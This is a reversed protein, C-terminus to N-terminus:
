NRILSKLWNIVEKQNNKISLKLAEDNNYRINVGGVSYLWKSIALHGLECSKRFAYDNNYHIYKCISYLWQVVFLQNFICAKFFFFDIKRPLAYPDKEHIIKLCSLKGNEICYCIEDFPEFNFGNELCYSVCEFFDTKCAWLLVSSYPVYTMKLFNQYIYSQCDLNILKNRISNKNKFFFSFVQTPVPAGWYDCIKLIKFFENM